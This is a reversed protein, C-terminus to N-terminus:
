RQEAAIANVLEEKKLSSKRRERRFSDGRNVIRGRKTSVFNRLREAPEDFQLCDRDVETQPVPSFHVLSIKRRSAISSAPSRCSQSRKVEQCSSSEGCTM